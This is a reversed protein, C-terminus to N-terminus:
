ILKPPRACTEQQYLIIGSANAVSPNKRIHFEQFNEARSSVMKKLEQVATLAQQTRPHATIKLQHIIKNELQTWDGLKLYDRAPSQRMFDDIIKITYYKM